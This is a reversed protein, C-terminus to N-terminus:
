GNEVFDSVKKHAARISDLADDSVVDARSLRARIQENNLGNQIGYLVERLVSGLFPWASALQGFPISLM